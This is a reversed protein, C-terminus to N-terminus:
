RLFAEAAAIFAKLQEDTMNKIMDVAKRQMETLENEEPLAPKNKQEATLAEVSVGFYDALKKLTTDNPAKGKKWGSAAANSLGIANAVASPSKNAKACLNLYNEYFVNM